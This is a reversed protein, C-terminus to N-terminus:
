GTTTSVRLELAEVTDRVAESYEILTMWDHGERAADSATRAFRQIPAQSNAYEVGTVRFIVVWQADANQEVFVPEFADDNALLLLLSGGDTASAPYRANGSLLLLNGRAAPGASGSLDESFQSGVIVNGHSAAASGESRPEKGSAGIWDYGWDFVRRGDDWQTRSMAYMPFLEVTPQQTGLRWISQFYMPTGVVNEASGNEELWRAAGVTPSAEATLRNADFSDALRWTAVGGGVVTVLITAAVLFSASKRGRPVLGLSAGALVALLTPLALANRITVGAMAAYVLYGVSSVALIGVLSVAALHRGWWVGMAAVSVLLIAALVLSGRYAQTSVVHLLADPVEWASMVAPTGFALAMGTVVLTAALAVVVPGVTVTASGGTRWLIALVALVVPVMAVIAWAAAGDFRRLGGPLSGSEVLVYVFWPMVAIAFGTFFWFLDRAIARRTLGQTLMWGILAILLFAHSEKTLVAAGGAVGALAFWAATRGSDHACLVLVVALLIFFVALADPAFMFAGSGIVVPHAVALVGAAVAPLPRHTVRYAVLAALSAIGVFVLRSMGMAMGSSYGGFLWSLALLAPYGPGRATILSGDPATYGVLNRLNAASALYGSGDFSVMWGPITFLVAAALVVTVPLWWHRTIHQVTPAGGIVRDTGTTTNAVSTM